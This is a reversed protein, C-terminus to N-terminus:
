ISPYRISQLPSVSIICTPRRLISFGRMLNYGPNISSTPPALITIIFCLHGLAKDKAIVYSGWLELKWLLREGYIEIRRSLPDPYFPGRFEPKTLSQFLFEWFVEVYFTKLIDRICVCVAPHSRVGFFSSAFMRSLWLAGFFLDKIEWFLRRRGFRLGTARRLCSQL